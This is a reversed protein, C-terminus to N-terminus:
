ASDGSDTPVQIVYITANGSVGDTTATITADGSGMATAQGSSNVTAASEDDSSWTFTKGQIANGSADRAIASLAATEGVFALTDASPSVVV